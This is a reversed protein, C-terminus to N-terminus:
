AVPDLAVLTYAALEPVILEWRRAGGSGAARELVPVELEEDRDPDLARARWAQPQPLEPPAFTVTVAQRWSHGALNVLHVRYGPPAGTRRRVECLVERPAHVEVELPGAAWRVAELWELARAPARWLAGPAVPEIRAAYVVRGRGYSRRMIGPLVAPREDVLAFHFSRMSERPRPVDPGLLERLLYDPRLRYWPDYLSTDGTMVVGGGDRVFATIAAAEAENLCAVEPLILLRLREAPAPLRALDEAFLLRFPIHAELLLQEFLHAAQYPEGSNLRLTPEHRLVAVQAASETGAYLDHHSRYFRAWRTLLPAFPEHALHPSGLMAGQGNNFALVEGFSRRIQAADTGRVYSFCVNNLAEAYKYERVRSILRGDPELRPDNRSETWFADNRPAMAPISVGRRLPGNEEVPVLANFEMAVHPGHSKVAAALRAHVRRFTECRFAIWEQHLPNLVVAPFQAAPLTPPTLQEIHPHGFREIRAKADPYRERLFTRFAQLCAPCHCPEATGWWFGDFHLLDADLEGAALHVLAEVRDLYGPQNPCMVQRFDQGPYTAGQGRADRQRWSPAEPAELDYTEGAVADFRIYVGVRLGHQHALAIFRRTREIEEREAERGFGKHFHTIVLNIGAERLTRLTEESHEAEYIAEEDVHAFGARRRFILPEWNGVFLLGEQFWDPLPTERDM